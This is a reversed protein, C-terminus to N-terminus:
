ANRGCEEEEGPLPLRGQGALFTKGLLANLVIYAATAVLISDFGSSFFSFFLGVVAGIAWSLIGIWNIGKVRYWNEPKGKGFIYYDAIMVGAVPPMIASLVSLFAILSNALGTLAMAIGIVGAILTVRPRLEERFNGIKMCAMGAVYANGANTTWTALILILMSIVPFGINVFMQTIDSQGTTVGMIGGITVMVVGAPLVGFMSAKLTDVRSKSYRSYDSSIVVSVAMGGICVSVASSLTIPETPTYAILESMGMLNIGHVAGYVCTIVLFPVAVYNLIKMFSYGTVSTALMIAGWLVCGGWQPFNVDFIKMMTSFAAACTATQVGFWGISSIFSIVSIVYSAGSDGFTKTACMASPLGLDGGIIGTLTMLGGILTYSITTALVVQGITLGEALSGGIMLSPICILIGIWIFSISWWSQKESETVRALARKEISFSKNDKKM